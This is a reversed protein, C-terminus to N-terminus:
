DGHDIMLLYQFTAPQKIDDNLSSKLIPFFLLQYVITTFSAICSQNQTFTSGKDGIMVIKSNELRLYLRKKPMLISQSVRTRKKCMMAHKKHLHMIM